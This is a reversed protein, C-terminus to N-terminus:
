NVSELYLRGRVAVDGEITFIMVGRVETSDNSRSTGTWKWETWVTCNHIGYDLLEAKFDPFRNFVWTWNEVVRDRGVFSRDPHVPQISQYEPHFCSELLSIDHQNIATFLRNLVNKRPDDSM